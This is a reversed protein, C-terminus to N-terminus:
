RKALEQAAEKPSFTRGNQVFPFVFTCGSIYQNCGWATRGQILLGKKCAPCRMGVPTNPSPLASPPTKPLSSNKQNSSYQDRNSDVESFDFVVKSNQDLRLAAAFEKGTKHSKFGKVTKTKGNKLLDKIMTSSIARNAMKGFVVFSCSRGTDCTFITRKQRVAAGCIPCDGLQKADTQVITEPKPPKASKIESIIANLNEIVDAMFQQRSDKGESINSLRAEWRGTLEASKLEEVPVSDILSRGRETSILNKKERLIFKRRLLTEIISARTAPTGLGANRMARKMEEDDLEKGASEMAGLLSAENYKPPPRTKGEMTEATITDPQDGKQLIPLISDKKHNPPDIAQWGKQVCVKGNSRFQLPFSIKEDLDERDEPAIDVVLSTLDFLADKAFAAMTRRSVLDFVQKEKVSLACQTADNGTPLIAHHDGVEKPNYIRTGKRLPSSKIEQVFSQYPGIKELGDLINPILVAQDPTLFKSDTRPYTLLKHKEYLAQAIDLTDQASLGYRQNARRQLSNLDYLLPTKETSRKKVAKTVLGKKGSVLRAIIEADEKSKLREANSAEEPNLKHNDENKYENKDEKVSKDFYYGDWQKKGESDQFAFTAKIRWFPEPVFDEIQRDRNVILALTPTQVRGISLFQDGGAAQALCTMARTANLGVLWDAESRCRAADALNEFHSGDQLNQWALKIAEDTLSSFWLRKIPKNCGAKQYVYRFILEGERGADCGNIVTDITKDQLLLAIDKWHDTVDKRINLHFAEPIMPLAEMQWRKWEPRYQEPMQLECMHGYCWTIRLNNGEFYSRKKTRIDLIKAIDRAVSPKETIILKM